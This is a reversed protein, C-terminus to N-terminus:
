VGGRIDKGEKEGGGSFIEPERLPPPPPPPPPARILHLLGIGGVRNYHFEEPTLNFISFNKEPIGL